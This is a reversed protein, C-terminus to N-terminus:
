KAEPESNEKLKLLAGAAAFVGGLGIGFNVMDFIPTPPVPMTIAKYLAVSVFGLYAVTSVLLCIRGCDLSFNDKGTIAHILAM